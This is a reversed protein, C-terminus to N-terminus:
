LTFVGRDIKMEKGVLKGFIREKLVNKLCRGQKTYSILCTTVIDKKEPILCIKPPHTLTNSSRGKEKSSEEALKQYHGFVRRSHDNVFICITDSDFPIKKGVEAKGTL